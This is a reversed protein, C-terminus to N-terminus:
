RPRVPIGHQRLAKLVTEPECGLQAAIDRASRRERVYHETLWEATLIHAWKRHGGSRRITVGAQVLADRIFRDDTGQGQALERLSAGAEYAARLRKPNLREQPRSGRKRLRVGADRLLQSSRNIPVGTRERIERLSLHEDVYLRALERLDFDNSRTM